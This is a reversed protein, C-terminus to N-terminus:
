LGKNMRQVAVSTRPTWSIYHYFQYVLARCVHDTFLFRFSIVQNPAAVHRGGERGPEIVM